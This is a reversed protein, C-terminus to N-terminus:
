RGAAPPEGAHRRRQRAFALAGVAVAGLPLLVALPAEPLVPPPDTAVAAPCCGSTAAVPQPAAAGTGGGLLTAAVLIAAGIGLVRPRPLWRWRSGALAMLLAGTAMLALGVAVAMTVAAGTTALASPATGLTSGLASVHPDAIASGTVPCCDAWAPATGAAVGVGVGALGVLFASFAATKARM